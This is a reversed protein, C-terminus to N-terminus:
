EALTIENEEPDYVLMDTREYFSDDGALKSALAKKKKDNDGKFAAFAAAVAKQKTLAGDGVAEVIAMQVEMEFDDLEGDEVEDEEPEEPEAAKSAKKSAAKGKTSKSGKSASKGGSSEVERREEIEVLVLVDRPARKKTEDGDNIIGSGRKTEWDPVHRAWEGYLGVLGPIGLDWDEYGAEGLTQLFFSYPQKAMLGRGQVIWLHDGRMRELDEETPIEEPPGTKGKAEDWEGPALRAYDDADFGGAPGEGDESPVVYRLDGAMLYDTYEDGDDDMTVIEVACKCGYQSAQGNFDFVVVQASTIVAKFPEQGKLGGQVLDDPRMSAIMGVQGEASKKKSSSKSKNSKPM